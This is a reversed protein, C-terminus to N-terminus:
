RPLREIEVRRNEAATPDATNYLESKGRGIAALRAPDLGHQKVLYDQVSKARDNSLMLNSLASGVADTHGTVMFRDSQGAKLVAAIKDIERKADDTLQASGFEFRIDFAAAVRPQKGPTLGRVVMNGKVGPCDPMEIMLAAAVDCQSAGKMLNVAQREQASATSVFALAALAMSCGRILGTM